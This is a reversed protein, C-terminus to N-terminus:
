VVEVKINVPTLGAYSVEMKFHDFGDTLVVLMVATKNGIRPKKKLRTLVDQHEQKTM